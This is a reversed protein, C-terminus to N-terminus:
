NLPLVIKFVPKTANSSKLSNPFLLGSQVEASTRDKVKWKDRNQDKGKEEATTKKFIM